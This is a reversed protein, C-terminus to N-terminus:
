FIKLFDDDKIYFLKIKSLLYSHESVDIGSM